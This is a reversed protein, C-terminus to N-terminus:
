LLPSQLCSSGCIDGAPGGWFKRQGGVYQGILAGNVKGNGIFGSYLFGDNFNNGGMQKYAASDGYSESSLVAGSNADFIYVKNIDQGSTVFVKGEDNACLHCYNFVNNTQVGNHMYQWKVEKLDPTLAYVSGDKSGAVVYGNSAVVPVWVHNGAFLNESVLTKAEIDICALGGGTLPLYATKRDDAVAFGSVDSPQKSVTINLEEKVAGDAANIFRVKLDKCALVIEDKNVLMAFGPTKLDTVWKASGDAANLAALKGPVDAVYVVSGDASVAPSTSKLSGLGAYQWKLKGDPGVCYFQGATTTGYYIDGTVPNVTLPNYSGSKAEPIFRWKEEGTILDYAYLGSIGNFTIDYVTKGDPSFVPYSGKFGNYNTGNQVFENAEVILSRLKLRIAPWVIEKGGVNASLIVEKDGTTNVTWQASEGTMVVGGPFQWKIDTAGPYAETNFEFDIKQGIAGATQSVFYAMKFYVTTQAPAAAGKPYNAVLSIVYNDENTINEIRYSTADKDITATVVNKENMEPYYTLTYNLLRDSPKEWTLEIYQNAQEVDATEFTMSSVSIRSTMPKGKVDVRNSFADGYIAQVYFLYDFNNQLGTVTFTTAGDTFVKQPASSADNYTILFDTPEWGEPVSWSLTVEEDDAVCKLNQIQHRAVDTDNM